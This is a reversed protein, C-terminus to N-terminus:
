ETLDVPEYGTIHPIAWLSQPLRTPNVDVDSITMTMGLQAQPWDLVIKMPLTAQSKADRAHGSLEARAILEDHMNYLAHERIVGRCTDVTTVKRVKFGQPSAREAILYVTKSGPPGQRMQVDEPDIDIVGLSEIIWDPQFPIAYKKLKAPEDHRAQFVHKEQNQKNWFWFQEQNSGLDAERLGMPGNVMLRFNRPSEVAITAPMTVLVGRPKITARDTKWSRIKRTNENLYAVVEEKPADPALVCPAPPPQMGCVGRMWACGSLTSILVLVLLLMESRRQVM